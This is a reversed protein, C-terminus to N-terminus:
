QSFRTEVAGSGPWFLDPVGRFMGLGRGRLDYIFTYPVARSCSASLADQKPAVRPPGLPVWLFRLTGWRPGLPVGVTVSFARHGWFPAWICGQLCGFSGPLLICKTCRAEPCGHSPGLPVGLFQLTDWRPGLPVKLVGFISWFRLMSERSAGVARSCSASLADQKQAGRPPGLPVWLFRLTGWRPGL